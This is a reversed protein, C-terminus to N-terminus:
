PHQSAHLLLDTVRMLALRAREPPWLDPDDTTAFYFGRLALYLADAGQQDDVGVDALLKGFDARQAASDARLADAPLQDDDTQAAVSLWIRRAAADYQGTDTFWSVLATLREMPDDFRAALETQERRWSEQIYRIANFLLEHRTPVYNTVLTTSGGLEAAVARVTIARPGVNMAVRFTARAIDDLRQQPDVAIPM